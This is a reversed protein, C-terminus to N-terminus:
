SAEDKCQRWDKKEYYCDTMKMNEEALSGTDTLRQVFSIRRCQTRVVHIMIVQVAPASYASTGTALSFTLPMRAATPDPDCHLDDSLAEVNWFDPHHM